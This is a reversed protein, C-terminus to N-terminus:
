GRPFHCFVSLYLFSEPTPCTNLDTGRSTGRMENEWPSREETVGTGQGWGVGTNTEDMGWGQLFGPPIEQSLFYGKRLGVDDTAVVGNRQPSSALSRLPWRISKQVWRGVGGCGRWETRLGLWQGLRGACPQAWHTGKWGWRIEWCCWTINILGDEEKSKTRGGELIGHKGLFGGRLNGRRLKRVM